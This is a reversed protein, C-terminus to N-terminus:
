LISMSRSSDKNGEIEDNGIENPTNGGDVTDADEGSGSPLGDQDDIVLNLNKRPKNKYGGFLTGVQKGNEIAKVQTKLQELEEYIILFM